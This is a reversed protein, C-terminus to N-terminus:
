PHPPHRRPSPRRRRRACTRGAPPSPAPRARGARGARRRAPARHRSRCRRRTVAASTSRSGRPSTTATSPEGAITSAARSRSPSAGVHADGVQELELEVARDVRDERGGGEVPDGVVVPQERPQERHELGAAPQDGLAAAGAVDRRQLRGGLPHPLPLRERGREGAPRPGHFKAEVCSVASRSSRSPQTSTQVQDCSTSTSGSSGCSYRPVTASPECRSRSSGPQSVPEHVRHHGLQVLGDHM